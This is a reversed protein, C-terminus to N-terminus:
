PIHAIIGHEEYITPTRTLKFNSALQCKKERLIGGDGESGDMVTFHDILAAFSVVFPPHEFYCVCYIVM